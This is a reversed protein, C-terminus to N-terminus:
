VNSLAAAYAKKIEAPGQAVYSAGGTARAIRTLTARDADPGYAITIVRV